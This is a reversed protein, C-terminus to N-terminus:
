SPAGRAASHGYCSPFHWAQTHRLMRAQAHSEHHMAQSVWTGVGRFSARMQQLAAAGCTTDPPNAVSCIFGNCRDSWQTYGPIFKAIGGLSTAM